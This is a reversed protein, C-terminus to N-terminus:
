FLAQLANRNQRSGTLKGKHLKRFNSSSGVHFFHSKFVCLYLHNKKSIVGNLRRYIKCKVFFFSKAHLFYCMSKIRFRKFILSNVLQVPIFVGEANPWYKVAICAFSKAAFFVNVMFVALILIWAIVICDHLRSKAIIM